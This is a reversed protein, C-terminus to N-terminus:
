QPHRFANVGNAIAEVGTLATSGSSFARLLVFLGIAGAGAPLPNPTVAHHLSGSALEVIGAIVLTGIATVFAYTPLAFLLGAERVGRLNALVILLLCALSLGVKHSQLSPMFSTIAYIGASISVAVTLV